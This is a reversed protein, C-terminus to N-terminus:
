QGLESPTCQRPFTASLGQVPYAYAESAFYPTGIALRFWLTTYKGTAPSLVPRGPTQCLIPHEENHNFQGNSITDEERDGPRPYVFVFPPPGYSNFKLVARGVSATTSPALAEAPATTTNGAPPNANTDGGNGGCAALALGLVLSRGILRRPLRSNMNRM